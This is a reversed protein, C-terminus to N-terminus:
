GARGRAGGAVATRERYRRAAERLQEARVATIYRPPFPEDDEEAGGPTGNCLGKARMELAYGILCDICPTGARGYEVKVDLGSWEVYDAESM